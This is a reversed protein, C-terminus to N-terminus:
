FAPDPDPILLDLDVVSGKVGRERKEKWVVYMRGRKERRGDERGEWWRREEWKGKEKRRGEGKGGQGKKMTRWERDEKEEGM